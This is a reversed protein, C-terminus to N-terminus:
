AIIPTKLLMMSLWLIKKHFQISQMVAGAIDGASNEISGRSYAQM